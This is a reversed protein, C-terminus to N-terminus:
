SQLREFVRCLQSCDGIADAVVSNEQEIWGTADQGPVGAGLVQFSVRGAFDDSLAEMAEVGLLIAAGAARLPQQLNGCGLAADLVLAPAHALVARAEPGVDHQGRE